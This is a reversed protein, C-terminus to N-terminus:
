YFHLTSRGVQRAAVAMHLGVSKEYGLLIRAQHFVGLAKVSGHKPTAYGGPIETILVHDFSETREVSSQVLTISFGLPEIPIQLLSSDAHAHTYLGGSIVSTRV